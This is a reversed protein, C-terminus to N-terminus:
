IFSQVHLPPDNYEGGGGGAAGPCEPRRVREEPSQAARQMLCQTMSTVFQKIFIALRRGCARIRPLQCTCIRVRGGRASVQIGRLGPGPAQAARPAGPGSALMLEAIELLAYFLKM